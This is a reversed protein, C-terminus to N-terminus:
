DLPLDGCTPLHAVAAHAGGPNNVLLEPSLHTVEDRAVQLIGKGQVVLALYGCGLGGTSTRSHYEAVGIAPRNSQPPYWIVDTFVWETRRGVPVGQAAWAAVFVEESMQARFGGYADRYLAAFDGQASRTAIEGLEARFAALLAPTLAWSQTLAGSAWLCVLGFTAIARM